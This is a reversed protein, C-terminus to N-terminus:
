QLNIDRKDPLISAVVIFHPIPHTHTVIPHAHTVIPHAHTVIPHTHTVIAVDADRILSKCRETALMVAGGEM